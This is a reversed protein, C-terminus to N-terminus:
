YVSVFKGNIEGVLGKLSLNSLKILVESVPLRLIRALEDVSKAENELIELVPDKLYRNDSFQSRYDLSIQGEGMGMEKLIDGARTVMKAEGKKILNNTGEAVRSTVSGPLSFLKKGFQKALRATIMSGSKEAGEVVWVADVIGAVIRNRQPFKWLEPVDEGEYESLILGDTELIKEYIEVDNDAVQWDIGWGLVAITKGGNDLCERHAKQDVGYMFGSVIIVGAEVLERMWKEIVKAGYETMRRSGVIALKPLDSTLLELNGKYFINKVPPKVSRLNDNWGEKAYEVGRNNETFKMM